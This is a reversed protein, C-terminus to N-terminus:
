RTNTVVETARHYGFYTEWHKIGEEISKVVIGIHDIIMALESIARTRYEGALRLM